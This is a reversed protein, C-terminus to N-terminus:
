ATSTHMNMKMVKHAKLKYAKHIIKKAMPTATLSLSLM